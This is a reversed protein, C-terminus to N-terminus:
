RYTPKMAFATPFPTQYLRGYIKGSRSLRQRSARCWRQTVGAPRGPSGASAYVPKQDPTVEGSSMNVFDAGSQYLQKAIEVAEDVTTGGPAWDTCSIRVGGRRPPQSHGPLYALAIASILSWNGEPLPQDPADWGVQTSMRRAAHRLQM